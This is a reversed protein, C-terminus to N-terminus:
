TEASVHILHGRPLASELSKEDARIGLGEGKPLPTPTLAISAASVAARLRRAERM